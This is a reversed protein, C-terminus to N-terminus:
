RGDNGSTVRDSLVAAARAIVDPWDGPRTQRLLRMTPYWPTDARDLMWRFDPAFPLLTWVPKGLAGALHAVATDVSIVLDLNAILAATDSFDQLKGASDILKMGEPPNAAQNDPDWKQLSYFVAGPAAALPALQELRLARQKDELHAPRGSWSIGVRLKAGDDHVRQRWVEILKPDATLYPIEAPITKLTTNFALPLSMLPLHLDFPPLHGVYVQAAFHRWVSYAIVTAM